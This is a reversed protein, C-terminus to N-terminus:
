DSFCQDRDDCDIDTNNLAKIQDKFSTYASSTLQIAATSTDILANGGNNDISKSNLTVDDFDTAWLYESGDISKVKHSGSNSNAKAYSDNKKGLTISPTGEGNLCM